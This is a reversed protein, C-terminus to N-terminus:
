ENTNWIKWSAEAQYHLMKLGNIIKCGKQEAIHLLTTKNPNYILDYVIQKSNIKNADMETEKPYTEMGCPTANIIIDFLSFDQMNNLEEYSIINNDTSPKRSVITCLINYKKLGQLVAKAAGGTGLILASHINEITTEEQLSKVFGIMDTNYGYLLGNHLLITNVAGITKADMSIFDLYRMIDVKYPSTVNFGQLTPTNKILTSLETLSQLEFLNYRYNILNLRSFKEEFFIKSYSHKIPNGILGFIKNQIM